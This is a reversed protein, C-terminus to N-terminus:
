ADWALTTMNKLWKMSSRELGHIHRRTDEAYTWKSHRRRLDRILEEQAERREKQKKRQKQYKLLDLIKGGNRKYARLRAMRDCGLESWGMPRSSMRASLVHSIQGEICYTWGSTEEVRTKIGQWHNLFYRLADEVEQKKNESETVKLIQEYINKLEKKDLRNLAGWIWDKVEDASDYLHAVSRNIYKMMHYKDLVYKSNELYECGKKIWSAGDGVVYIRELYDTDYTKEIYEAVEMWLKENGKGGEYIGCFYKKGILKYRPNKSAEGSENIIDEFVCVLKPMLTNIKHGRADRKLDGKENWFQAAVHDEDAMVHLRKIKKKGEPEPMPMDAEIEHVLDMVAQKSIGEEAKISANEGGKRYSSDISEELARAAAGLTVKQHPEFGLVQDLLYVYEGTGKACYGTRCFEVKGMVDVITKKKNRHEVNWYKKRVSSERIDNDAKEYLDVILSVALTSTVKNVLATLDDADKKGALIDGMMKEIEVLGNEIFHLISKYM